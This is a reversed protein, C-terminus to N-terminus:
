AHSHYGTYKTLFGYAFGLTNGQADASTKVAFKNIADKTTMNNDIMYQLQTENDENKFLKETDSGLVLTKNSPRLTRLGNEDRGQLLYLTDGNADAKAFNYQLTDKQYMAVEAIVGGGDTVKRSARNFCVVLKLTEYETCFNFDGTSDMFGAIPGHNNYEPAIANTIATVKGVGQTQAKEPTTMKAWVGNAKAYWGCGTDYDYENVYVGNELKNTMAILGTCYDHLGWADIGARIVDTSSASCVWVDIGNDKFASWLEKINETVQTGCTWDYTVEFPVKSGEVYPAKWHIESTHLGKYMTHSKFALNYVQQETMGTFWYLIWPYAVSASEADYVLDYMARMKTAFESWMPDEHIELLYPLESIGEATFPGYTEYLYKYANCIDDAWDEYSGKGDIDGEYSLGTLLVDPLKTPEIEFSMTQLQYIALQEEVDFISCTNDFDFVVYTDKKYNKSDKGYSALFDNIGVKVDSAWDNRVLRQHETSGFCATTTLVMCVTLLLVFIKKM